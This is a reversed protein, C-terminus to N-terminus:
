RGTSVVARFKSVCGPTSCAAYLQFKTRYFALGNTVKCCPCTITTAIDYMVGARKEFLQVAAAARETSM